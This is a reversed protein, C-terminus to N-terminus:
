LVRANIGNFAFSPITTLGVTRIDSHAFYVAPFITLLVVVTKATIENFLIISDYQVM